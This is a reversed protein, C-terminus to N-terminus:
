ESTAVDGVLSIAVEAGGVLVPEDLSSATLALTAALMSGVAGVPMARYERKAKAPATQQETVWPARVGTSTYTKMGGRRQRLRWHSAALTKAIRGVHRPLALSVITRLMLVLICSSGAVYL